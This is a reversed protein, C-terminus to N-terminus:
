GKTETKQSLSEMNPETPQNKIVFLDYNVFFSLVDDVIESHIDTGRCLDGDVTILELAWTLREAVAQCETRRETSKPFYNICFKNQRFYRQGLKQNVTPNLCLISFSPEEFGQEVSETYIDYDGKFESRITAIIGDIIKNIM